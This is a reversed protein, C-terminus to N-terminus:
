VRCSKSDADKTLDDIYKRRADVGAQIGSASAGARAIAALTGNWFRLDEQLRALAEDIPVRESTCPGYPRREAAFTLAAERIMPTTIAYEGDQM